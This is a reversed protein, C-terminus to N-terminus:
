RFTEWITKLICSGFLELKVSVSRVATVAKVLNWKEAGLHIEKILGSNLFCWYNYNEFTADFKKVSLKVEVRELVRKTGCIIHALKKWVQECVLTHFHKVCSCTNKTQQTNVGPQFCNKYSEKQYIHLVSQLGHDKVVHKTEVESNLISWIKDVVIM